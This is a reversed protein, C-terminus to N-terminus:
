RAISKLAGAQEIDNFVTNALAEASFADLAEPTRPFRYSKEYELSSRAVTGGLHQREPKVRLMTLNFRFYKGADDENVDHVLQIIRNCQNKALTEMIAKEAGVKESPIIMLKVADHQVTLRKFFPKVVAMNIDFWIQTIKTNEFDSGVGGVVVACSREENFYAPISSTQPVYSVIKRTSIEIIEPAWRDGNYTPRTIYTQGAEAQFMVTIGQDSYRPRPQYSWDNLRVTVSHEGPLVKFAGSGPVNKEDIMEVTTFKPMITAVESDPRTAGEYMVTTCATTHIVFLLTIIKRAMMM